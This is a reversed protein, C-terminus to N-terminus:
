LKETKAWTIDFPIPELGFTWDDYDDMNRLKSAYDEENRPDYIEGKSLWKALRMREEDPSLQRKM